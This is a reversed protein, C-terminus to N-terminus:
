SALAAEIETEGPLAGNAGTVVDGNVLVTPTGQYGADRWEDTM